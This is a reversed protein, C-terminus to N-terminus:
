SFGGFVESIIASRNDLPQVQSVKIFDSTSLVTEDNPLTIKNCCKRCFRFEELM